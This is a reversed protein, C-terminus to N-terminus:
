NAAADHVKKIQAIATDVIKSAVDPTALIADLTADEIDKIQSLATERAKWAIVIRDAITEVPVRRRRAEAELNSIDDQNGNLARVAIDYRWRMAQLSSTATDTTSRLRQEDTPGFVQEVPDRPEIYEPLPSDFAEAEEVRRMAAAMPSEDAERFIRPLNLPPEPVVPAALFDDLDAQQEVPAAEPEEAEPASEPVAQAQKLAAAFRDTYENFERKTWLPNGDGDWGYPEPPPAPQRAPPEGLVNTPWLELLEDPTQAQEIEPSATVDCLEQYKEAIGAKDLGLMQARMWAANVEPFLTKRVERMRNRHINRATNMCHSIGNKPCYRWANRFPDDPIICGPPIEHVAALKEDPFHRARRELEDEISGQLLKTVSVDGAERVLLYFKM